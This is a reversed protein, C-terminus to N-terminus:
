RPDEDLKALVARIGARVSDPLPQPTFDPRGNARWWEAAGWEFAHVLEDIRQEDAQERELWDAWKLLANITGHAGLHATRRAEDAVDRLIEPTIEVKTATDSTHHQEEHADIEDAVDDAPGTIHFDCTTCHYERM